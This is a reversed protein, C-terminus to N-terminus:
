DQTGFERELSKYNKENKTAQSENQGQALIM